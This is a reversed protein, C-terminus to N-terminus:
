KKESINASMGATATFRLGQEVTMNIEYIYKKPVILTYGGIQYSMPLYVAVDGEEAVGKFVDNFTQRTVLGMVKFEGIKVMVVHSQNSSTKSTTNFFSMLDRISNYLTKVLPMQKFIKEVLGYIRQVIWTNIVAGIVFIFLFIIIVGLGKFYYPGAIERIPRSIVNEMMDYIWGILAITIAVPAATILGRIFIAKLFKMDEGM